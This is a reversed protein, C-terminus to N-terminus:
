QRGRALPEQAAASHHQRWAASPEQLHITEAQLLMQKHLCHHDEENCEGALGLSMYMKSVANVNPDFPLWRLYQQINLRVPDPMHKTDKNESEELSCQDLL